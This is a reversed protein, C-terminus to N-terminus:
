FSGLEEDAWTALPVRNAQLQSCVIGPNVPNFLSGTAGLELGHTAPWQYFCATICLAVEGHGDMGYIM